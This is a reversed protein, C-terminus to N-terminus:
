EYRLADITLLAPAVLYALTGGIGAASGLGYQGIGSGTHGGRTLWESSAAHSYIRGNTM